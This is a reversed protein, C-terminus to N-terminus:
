PKTGAALWMHGMTRIEDGFRDRLQAAARNQIEQWLGPDAQERIYRIGPRWERGVLYQDVTYAWHYTRPQVDVDVLGADRLANEVNERVRLADESPVPPAAPAMDLDHSAVISEVIKDAEPGQHEDSATAVPGWATFGFRGGTHLVRAVDVVALAYDAIHSLVLNGLVADFVGDAFPLGPSLGAVVTLGRPVARELMPVSPDVGVVFADPGADTLALQGAIGTGTGVDLVRGDTPPGVAAVLDHAVQLFRPGAAREYADVVSDYSKWGGPQRDTPTV